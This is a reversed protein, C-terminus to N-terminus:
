RVSVRASHALTHGQPAQALVDFRVSGLHGVLARTAGTWATQGPCSDGMVCAKSNGVCQNLAITGEVAQVVDLLSIDRAPKALRIGGGSGRSSKLIGDKILLGVMRRVFPVPLLQFRSIEAISVQTGPELCALHLVLRTAYDTQRSIGLM